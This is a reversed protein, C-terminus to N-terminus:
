STAPNNTQDLITQYPMDVITLSKADLHIGAALVDVALGRNTFIVPIIFGKQIAERDSIVKAMFRDGTRVTRNIMIKGKKTKTPILENYM